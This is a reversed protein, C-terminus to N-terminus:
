FNITSEKIERPNITSRQGYQNKIKVLEFSGIIEDIIFNEEDTAGIENRIAATLNLKIKCSEAMLLNTNTLM